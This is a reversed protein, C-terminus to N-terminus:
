KKEPFLRLLSRENAEAIGRETIIGTILRRPTVDFAYNAAETDERTLRVQRVEGDSFGQVYKVEDAHREEIPIDRVGDKANWDISSSPAAVYFPVRNDKAALAVLYTGIKNAVDGTRTTRDTGVIVLDVHGRQMLHGAASDVIVRHPIGREALEWATLRAGQSRPRTEDVWVHIQIKKEFAQYVASTATGWEVCALWGANCHTLIEVSAGNKRKAISEIIKLGHGGIKRCTEIDDAAIRNATKLAKQIKKAASIENEVASRVQELAWKLNVATPRTNLLKEEARRPDEGRAFALYMGYAAAVGILPAGRLHMDAVARAMEESTRIDEIVLRHPLHRQDIIQVVQEDDEKLWISRRVGQIM